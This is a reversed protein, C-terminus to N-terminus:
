DPENKDPLDIIVDAEIRRRLEDENQVDGLPNKPEVVVDQVDKYGFLNKGLFIGSAPNIKGSMMYMQWMDELAAVASGIINANEESTYQGKRWRNLIDRGVGIWNAMGIVNPKMDHQECFDFYEEIRGKLQVPDHPNIPKLDLAVRAMRLFRANDGPDAYEMGFNNKSNRVKDSRKKAHQADEPSLLETNKRPRGPARKPKNEEAM